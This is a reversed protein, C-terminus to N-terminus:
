FFNSCDEECCVVAIAIFAQRKMTCSCFCKDFPPKQEKERAKTLCPDKWDRSLTHVAKSWSKLMRVYESTMMLPIM